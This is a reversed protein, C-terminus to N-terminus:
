EALSRPLCAAYARHARTRALRRSLAASRAKDGCRHHLVAEHFILGGEVDDEFRAVVNGRRADLARLEAPLRSYLRALRASHRESMECYARLGLVVDLKERGPRNRRNMPTPKQQGDGYDIVGEFNEGLYRRMLATLKASTLQNELIPEARCVWHRIFELSSCGFTRKFHGIRPHPAGEDLIIISCKGKRSFPLSVTYTVPQQEAGVPWAPPLDEPIAVRFVRTTRRDAADLLTLRASSDRLVARMGTTFGKPFSAPLRHAFGRGAQNVPVLIDATSFPVQAPCTVLDLVGVPSNAIWNAGAKDLHGLPRGMDVLAEAVMCFVPALSADGGDADKRGCRAIRANRQCYAVNYGANVVPVLAVTCAVPFAESAVMLAVYGGASGGSLVIRRSDVFPMARVAQVLAINFNISDCFPNLGEAASIAAWGERLYGAMGDLNTEYHLHIVAPLPAPARSPVFLRATGAAFQGEINLYPVRIDYCQVRIGQGRREGPLRATREAVVQFPRDIRAPSLRGKLGNLWERWRRGSM